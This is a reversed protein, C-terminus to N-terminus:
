TTGGQVLRVPLVVTRTTQLDLLRGAEFGMAEFPLELRSLSRAAAVATGMGSFVGAKDPCHVRAAHLADLLLTSVNDEPCFLAVRQRTSRVREVVLRRADADAASLAVPEHSIGM